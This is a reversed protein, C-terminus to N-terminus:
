VLGIMTLAFDQGQYPQDSDIVAWNAQLFSAFTTADSNGHILVPGLLLLNGGVDVKEVALNKFVIPTVHLAGHIYTKDIGINIAKPYNVRVAFDKLTLSKTIQSIFSQHHTVRQTYRESFMFTM